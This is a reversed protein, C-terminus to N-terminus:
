GVLTSGTCEPYLHRYRTWGRRATNGFSGVAPCLRLPCITNKNNHVVDEMHLINVVALFSSHLLDGPNETPYKVGSLASRPVTHSTSRQLCWLLRAHAM